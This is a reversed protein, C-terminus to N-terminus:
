QTFICDNNLSFPNFNTSRDFFDENEVRKLYRVIAYTLPTFLVEVFVKFVYNGLILATALSWPFVGLACAIVVFATSDLMQGVLTSGITRMWLCRGNMWVKMKALVYSNSFEGLFFACLSALVIGGSSVSGLIATYATDGAYGQWQADGPLRQIFWFCLSMVTLAAFGTWIVRRSRSYGYVETLVDDFIYSLPFLFTGADISFPVGAVAFGLWVIKASSAVNSILLIAVFSATILDIFRYSRLAHHSIM